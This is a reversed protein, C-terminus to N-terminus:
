EKQGKSWKNVRFTGFKNGYNNLIYKVSSTILDFKILDVLTKSM